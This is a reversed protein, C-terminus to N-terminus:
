FLTLQDITDFVTRERAGSALSQEFLEALSTAGRSVPAPTSRSTVRELVEVDATEIEAAVAAEEMVDPPEAVDVVPQQELAVAERLLDAELRRRLKFTWGGLIHAPTYWTGWVEMSLANGHVVTAPVHLLSLQVYTMHVCCPDIDICTAHMAQQFNHGAALISDAAAIVMGGAGCAPEHVRLFGRREVEAGVDGMLMMSMMRSVSYPTFFQGARDNGLGLMMYTEGLVDTLGGSVPLGDATEKRIVAVRREFSEVLLGLMQPFREVEERKYKGVIELYRKERAEFQARDASNSIALASMEVFDSFVTHLHHGYSFSQILKVLEKQASDATLDHKRQASNRSM